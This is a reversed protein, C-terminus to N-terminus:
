RDAPRRLVVQKVEQWEVYQAPQGKEGFVLLGANGEGLDGALELELRQGNHLSLLARRDGDAEPLTISLIMSFPITYDVGGAPADLTDTVESEDLDYVLRGALRRGDRALVEGHLPGGPPFDLYSPGRGGPSFEVSTLAQWSVLVRGFRADDVYVGRHEPGTHRSGSLTLTRGDRLTVLAAGGPQPAIARIAGLTLRVEGGEGRGFIEDSGLCEQRNWQLFGRFEGQPTRVTGHLRDPVAASAPAPLFEILRIRLSDLDVVGRVPDWVRVGDDFDSAELRDLGAAAGSKLTVRVLRGDSEIRALDGFRSMFLRKLNPPEERAFLEIGFLGFPRRTRPLRGPPVYVAWPNDKKAGNFYDGWFAEQNGGWRLRGEFVAGGAATIRGYLFSEAAGAQDDPELSGADAPGARFFARYAAFGLMLAAVAVAAFGLIWRATRM